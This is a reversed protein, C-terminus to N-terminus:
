KRLEGVQAARREALVALALSFRGRLPMYGLRLWRADSYADFRAPSVHLEEATALVQTHSTRYRASTM